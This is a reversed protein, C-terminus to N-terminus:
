PSIINPCSPSHWLTTRIPKGKDWTRVKANALVFFLPPSLWSLEWAWGAFLHLIPTFNAHYNIGINPQRKDWTGLLPLPSLPPSSWAVNGGGGGGGPQWFYLFLQYSHRLQINLFSIRQEFLLSCTWKTLPYSIITHQVLLDTRKYYNLTVILFIVQQIYPFPCDEQHLFIYRYPIFHCPCFTQSINLM